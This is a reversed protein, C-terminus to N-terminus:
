FNVMCLLTSILLFLCTIPQLIDAGSRSFSVLLGPGDPKEDACFDSGFNKVTNCLDSTCTDVDYALMKQTNPYTSVGPLLRYVHDPKKMNFCSDGINSEDEAKLRMCGREITTRFDHM